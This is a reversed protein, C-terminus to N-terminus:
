QAGGEKADPQKRPRGRKRPQPATTAPNAPPTVLAELSSYIVLRRRGINVTKVGDTGILEWMKTPGVGLIACAQKVTVALPRVSGDAFHATHSLGTSCISM